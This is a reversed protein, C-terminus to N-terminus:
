NIGKEFHSKEKLFSNKGLHLSNKCKLATKLPICLVFVGIGCQAIERSYILWHMLNGVIHYTCGAFGSILRRMCATQGSGQSTAQIYSDILKLSSVLCWKSNRLKFPHQVPEGSDVSTLIDFQQFDCAM